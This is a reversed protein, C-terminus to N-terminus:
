TDDNDAADEVTAARGKGKSDGSSPEVASGNASSVADDHTGNALSGASEDKGDVATSENELPSNGVSASPLGHGWNPLAISPTAPSELPDINLPRTNINGNSSRQSTANSSPQPSTDIHTVEGAGNSIRITPTPMPAPPPAPTTASADSASAATTDTTSADASASAASTSTEVESPEALGPVHVQPLVHFPNNVLDDFREANNGHSTHDARQLPLLSWGEPLVLGEPLDPHGSGLPAQQPLNNLVEQPVELPVMQPVLQPLAPQPAAPFRQGLRTGTMRAQGGPASTLSTPADTSLNAAADTMTTVNTGNDQRTRLQELEVQLARVTDLQDRALSLSEIEASIQQEIATLNTRLQAATLQGGSGQTPTSTLNPQATSSSSSPTAGPAPLAARTANADQFRQLANQVQQANGTAFTLRLSGLSFTRARVADNGAGPGANPGQAGAAGGPGGRAPGDGPRGLGGAPGDPLPRQGAPLLSTRPTPRPALVSRRCTPCVQQRELWSRLCGFHLIHGCPLKKPRQREDMPPRARRQGADGAQAGEGAPQWPRMEERCIICTGDRALDEATADPYRENMDRTANRYKLYDNIRKLFSRTTIFLDRFMHIPIGSFFLLIM